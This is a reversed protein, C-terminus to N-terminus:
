RNAPPLGNEARRARWSMVTGVAAITAAGLLWARSALLSSVVCFGFAWALWTSRMKIMM